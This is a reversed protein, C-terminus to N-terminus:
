TVGNLEFDSLVAVLMSRMPALRCKQRGGGLRFFRGPEALRYRSLVTVIREETADRRPGAQSRAM